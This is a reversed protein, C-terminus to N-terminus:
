FFNLSGNIIVKDLKLLGNKILKFDLHHLLLILQFLRKVGILNLDKPASMNFLNIWQFIIKTM